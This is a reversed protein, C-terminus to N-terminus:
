ETNSLFFFLLSIPNKKASSVWSGVSGLPPKKGGGFGVRKNWLSFFWGGCPPFPFIPHETCGELLSVGREEGLIESLM